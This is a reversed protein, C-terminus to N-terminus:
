KGDSGESLEPGRNAAYLRLPWEPMTRDEPLSKGNLVALRERGADDLEGAREKFALVSGLNSALDAFEHCPKWCLSILNVEEDSRGGRGGIIHHLTREGEAGCCACFWHNRAYDALTKRSSLPRNKPLFIKADHENM